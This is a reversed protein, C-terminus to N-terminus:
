IFCFDNKQIDFHIGINEDYYEEKLAFIGARTKWIVGNEELKNLEWSFVNITYAQAQRMKKYLEGTKWPPIESDFFTIYSEGQEYPVLIGVTNRDIVFFEKGAKQFSQTFCPLTEEEGGQEWFAQVGHDNCALLDLLTIGSKLSYEKQAETYRGYFAEFYKQIIEPQLLMDAETGTSLLDRTVQAGNAIDPLYSLNENELSVIKVKGYQREGHRNCRGAAQAISSCGALVRYVSAFSIDVGAEILQTSILLLPKKQGLHKKIRDLIKRRHAPCLKTSLHDIELQLGEEDAISRAADYLDRAEKTLNCILLLNGERETEHVIEAALEDIHMGGLPLEAEIKTRQFATFAQSLDQLMEAHEAFNLPYRLAGLSPQTATCLVITDNQLDALYNMAQNFLYTCKVPITQAEDLIIVSDCLSWLRRAASACGAFLTNFFQVQTTFVIPVDWREAMLKTRNKEEESIEEGDEVMMDSHYELIEEGAQLVNRIDRANQEIISTYPLIVFIHKKHKQLAHHLAFRMSAYTKGSGTPASLRYIGTPRSAAGLAEDSVKTRARTIPNSPYRNQFGAIKNELKQSFNHWVTDTDWHQEMAAFNKGQSFAASDMWDADVLLSYLIKETMGFYFAETELVDKSCSGITEALSCVEKVASHFLSDLDTPSIVQHFFYIEDIKPSNESELRKQYLNKGEPSLFDLLGTPSHHSFIVLGALQITELVGLEDLDGYREMLFAGGATSHIVTGRPWKKDPHDFNHRIYRQFAESIKGLDHLIGILRALAAVGMGEANKGMIASVNQLHEAVTQVEAASNNKGTANRLHAAYIKLGYM